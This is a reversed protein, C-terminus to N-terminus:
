HSGGHRCGNDELVGIQAQQHVRSILGGYRKVLLCEAPCNTRKHKEVVIKKERARKTKAKKKKKKDIM